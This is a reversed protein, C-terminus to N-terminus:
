EGKKRYRVVLYVVFFFGLALLVLKIETFYKELMQQWNDKFALCLYYSLLALIVNWILSGLLTYFSFIWFNMKALGAPISILQRIGPVLRGIFTSSKGHRVFYQEAKGIKEPSILMMKAIRTDALAYVIKRGLTIALFYNVWAGIMAGLTSFVIILVINLQGNAAQYAAPPIVLESPFPIFSSEVAMLLTITTYNLKKLYWNMVTNFFEQLM